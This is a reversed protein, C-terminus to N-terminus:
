FFYFLISLQPSPLLSELLSEPYPLERCKTSNLDIGKFNSSMLKVTTNLRETMDLEKHGWPSCCVLSGQGIGVERDLVLQSTIPGSAMIKTKQINLTLGDKESEEKVKILLSKLEKESQAM